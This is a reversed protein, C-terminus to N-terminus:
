NSPPYLGELAIAYYLGLYPQMNPHPQNGGAGETAATGLAGGTTAGVAPTGTGRVQVEPLGHAHLPLQSATLTVTETGGTEGLDHYSLGPGQGPHLPVRGRLDPLAFTTQGNGGYTTGLLSFLATFQAIQLIQGNCHAWGRPAFNFGYLVIEGIYPEAGMPARGLPKGQADVLTGPEIGLDVGRAWAPSAFLVSGAV